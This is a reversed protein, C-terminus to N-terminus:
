LNGGPGESLSGRGEAAWSGGRGAGLRGRWPPFCRLAAGRCLPRPVPHLLDGIYSIGVVARRWGRKKAQRRWGRGPPRSKQWGFPPITGRSRDDKREPHNKAPHGTGWATRETPPGSVGASRGGRGSVGGGTQLHGRRIKKHLPDQHVWGMSTNRLPSPSPPALAPRRPPATASPVADPTGRSVNRGQSGATGGSM